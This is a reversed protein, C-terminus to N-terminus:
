KLYVPVPDPASLHAPRSAATPYDATTIPAVDVDGVLDLRRAIAFIHRAFGHWSVAGRGCLHYTGWPAQSHSQICRCVTLLAAALDAAAKEAVATGAEAPTLYPKDGKVETAVLVWVTLVLFGVAM